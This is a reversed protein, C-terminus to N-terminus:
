KTTVSFLWALANATFQSNYVTQNTLSPTRGYGSKGIPRNNSDVLFPCINDSRMAGSTGSQSNFGGDGAWVFNLEKHRFAFINGNSDRSLVEIDNIARGLSNPEIAIGTTADDGLKKNRIDGFPGNLVPDDVNLISCITGSRTGINVASINTTGLVANLLYYTSANDNADTVALLAGGSRVYNAIAIAATENMRTNYGISILAPNSTNIESAVNNITSDNNVIVTISGEMAVTSTPLSGFNNPSDIFAKSHGRDFGYGYSTKNSYTLMKKSSLALTVDFSCTSAGVSTPMNLIMTKKDNNTPTGKGYLVFATDDIFIEKKTFVGKAEFYIGDVTNTVIHYEGPEVVEMIITVYNSANLPTGARYKGFVQQNGPFCYIKLVAEKSKVPLNYVCSASVINENSATPNYEKIGQSSMQIVMPLTTGGVTPKGTNVIPRMEVMQIDNTAVNFKFDVIDSEFEIKQTQTSSIEIVGRVKGRGTAIVKVPVMIKHSTTLPENKLFEGVSTVKTCDIIVEVKSIVAFYPYVSPTEGQEVKVYSNSIFDLDTQMPWTPTGYGDLEIIATKSSVEQSTLTRTKKFYIGNVTPTTITVVGGQSINNITVRMKGTTKVDNLDVGTYFNGIQEVKIIDYTLARKEVENSLTCTALKKNLFFKVTDKGGSVGNTREYGKVPTGNGKLVLTYDGKQPFIGSALFSYGNEKGTNDYAIAQIEYSGPISVSVDVTIVNKRSDLFVGEIYDGTIKIARCKDDPIIFTAPGVDWCVNMWQQRSTNYFEVCEITTNYIVMGGLLEHSPIRMRETTSMRPLLFGKEKSNLELLSFNLPNLADSSSDDSIQTGKETLVQAVSIQTPGLVYFLLILLVTRISKNLSIHQIM